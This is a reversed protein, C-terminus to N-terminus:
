LIKTTLLNIKKQVLKPLYNIKVLYIKKPVIKDLSKHDNTKKQTIILYNDLKSNKVKNLKGM